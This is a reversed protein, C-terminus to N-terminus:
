KLRATLRISAHDVSQGAAAGVHIALDFGAPQLQASLLMRVREAMLWCAMKVRAPLDFYDPVHRKPVILCDWGSPMRCDLLSYAQASETVLECNPSPACFPCGDDARSQLQNIHRYEYIECYENRFVSRYPLVVNCQYVPCRHKAHTRFGSHKVDRRVAFYARGTPRLLESVAMLVHSQEEPLLVNLVYNCLITDFKGSPNEPAYYPDFGCVDLDHGQLFAVDSGRGCGFDLVRGVLLGSHFLKRVPYSPGQREKATLHSNPNGPLRYVLSYNM